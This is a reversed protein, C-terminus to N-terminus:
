GEDGKEFRKSIKEHVEKRVAEMGSFPKTALFSGYFDVLAKKKIPRVVAHDGEVSFIVSDGEKIALANRINKPITVQGKYTIKAKQMFAGWM